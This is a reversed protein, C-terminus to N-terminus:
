DGVGVLTLLPNYEEDDVTHEISWLPPPSAPKAIYYGQVFDAGHERVWDLEEACEIGEAITKVDLAQATELLKRAIMGKYPDLHVNRILQMDLKIYDPRLEHLMNLSSYGSGVDDLAIEFGVARYYDCINKLHNPDNIKDSEIVEFVVQDHRIGLEEMTAVTSRLCFTPDYIASPTFNIFIKCTLGHKAAERIASRRAELDLQFLLDAGRAVDLMRKPSVFQNGDLGRMLCEYAMISGSSAHVIPQFHTTVQGECLMRVLWGSQARALFAELSTADLFDCVQLTKGKPQFLVRVDAQEQSSLLKTLPLVVDTIEQHPVDISVVGADDASHAWETHRLHALVKGLSHTLPFGFHLTGPGVVPPRVLECRQCSPSLKM